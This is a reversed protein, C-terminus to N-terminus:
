PCYRTVCIKPVEVLLTRSRLSVNVVVSDRNVRIISGDLDEYPGDIIKVYENEFFIDECMSKLKLRLEKIREDSVYSSGSNVIEFYYNYASFTPETNDGSRVFIYGDLVSVKKTYHEKPSKFPFFIDVRTGFATKLHERLIYEDTNEGVHTLKLALWKGESM